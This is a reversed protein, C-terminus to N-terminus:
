DAPFCAPVAAAAGCTGRFRMVNGGQFCTAGFDLFAVRRFLAFNLAQESIFLNGAEDLAAVIEAGAANGNGNALKSVAQIDVKIGHRLFIFSQVAGFQRDAFGLFPHGDDNSWFVDVEEDFIRFFFVQFGGQYGPYGVRAAEGHMPATFFYDIKGPFEKIGVTRGFVCFHFHRCAVYIGRIQTKSIEFIVCGRFRCTIFVEFIICSSLLLRARCQILKARDEFLQNCVEVEAGM